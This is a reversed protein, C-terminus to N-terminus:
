SANMTDGRGRHWERELIAYLWEDAWRGKEWRHERLHAERRMGIKELVRASATNAPDCVAWIRHLGLQEFGLALLGRATEAAYGHGWDRRNLVYGIFAGAHEPEAIHLGCGGILRDESGLVIALMFRQRPSEARRAAAERLFARTDDLRNPGWPVYRVVEPDSAYGHVADLDDERFDRLLLRPLRLTLEDTM